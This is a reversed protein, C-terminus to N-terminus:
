LTVLGKSIAYKTLEATTRLGLEKMIRTKHFEVTKISVNLTSAIEKTTRGEAVLQLVERQRLSLTDSFGEAAPVEQDPSRTAREVLAETVIPSVFSRGKTVEQIAFILESAASQKLVYASVGVRFAETVFNQDAHMTLIILKIEPHHKKIQRAADLGNLLPLSIDVVAVDPVLQEAVRMLARGDTVTGVLEVEPELLKEIGEAVLAHDDALLVRPKGM